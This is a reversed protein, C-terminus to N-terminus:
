ASNITATASRQVFLELRWFHDIAKLWANRVENEQGM